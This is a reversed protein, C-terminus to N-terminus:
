ARRKKRDMRAARVSHRAWGFCVQQSVAQWKTAIAAHFSRIGNGPAGWLQTSLNSNRSGVLSKRSGRRPLLSGPRTAQGAHNKSQKLKEDLSKAARNSSKEFARGAARASITVAVQPKASLWFTRRPSISSTFTIAFVREM